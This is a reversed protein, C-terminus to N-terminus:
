VMVEIQMVIAKRVKEFDFRSSKTFCFYEPREGIELFHLFLFVTLIKKKNYRSPLLHHSPKIADGVGHVHLPAFEPLRHLVSPTWPNSFLQVRSLSQVIAFNNIKGTDKPYSHKIETFSM